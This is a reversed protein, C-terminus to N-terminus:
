EAVPVSPTTIEVPQEIVVDDVISQRSEHSGFLTLGLSSLMFLTALIATIRTLLNGVSKGSLLSNAGSGGGMGSGFGDSESRQILIIAILSLTVIVHIVLLIKIM